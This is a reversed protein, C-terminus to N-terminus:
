HCAVFQEDFDRNVYLQEFETSIQLEQFPNFLGIVSGRVDAPNPKWLNSNCCFTNDIVVISVDKFVM